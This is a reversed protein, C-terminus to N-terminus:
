PLATPFLCLALEECGHSAEMQLVQGGGSKMNQGILERGCLVKAGM